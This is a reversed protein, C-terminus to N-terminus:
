RIWGSRSRTRRPVRRISTPPSPSRPSALSSRRTIISDRGPVRTSSSITCPTARGRRGDPGRGGPARPIELLAENGSWVQRLFLGDMIRAAEVLRALAQRENDPLAGLDAGIEAPAFRATMTRLASPPTAPTAPSRTSCHVGERPHRRHLGRRRGLHHPHPRHRVVAQTGHATGIGNERRASEEMRRYPERPQAHSCVSFARRTDFRRISANARRRAGAERRESGVRAVIHPNYDRLKSLSPM